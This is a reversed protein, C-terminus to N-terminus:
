KFLDELDMDEIPGEADDVDDAYDSNNSDNSYNWFRRLFQMM